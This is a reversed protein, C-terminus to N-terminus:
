RKPRVLIRFGGRVTSKSAVSGDRNNVIIVDGWEEIKYGVFGRGNENFVTWVRQGNEIRMGKFIAVHGWNKDGIHEGTWFIIDGTRLQTPDEIVLIQYEMEMNNNEPENYTGHFPIWGFPKNNIVNLYFDSVLDSGGAPNIRPMPSKGGITISVFQQFADVCQAGFAGDFDVEVNNVKKYLWDFNYQLVRASYLDEEPTFGVKALLDPATM